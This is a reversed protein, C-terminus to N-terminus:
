YGDCFPKTLNGLVKKGMFESVYREYVSRKWELRKETVHHQKRDLWDHFFKDVTVETLSFGGKHKVLLDVYAAQAKLIVESADSTGCSRRIYGAIGEVKARFFFRDSDLDNRRFIILRSGHLPSKQRDKYAEPM